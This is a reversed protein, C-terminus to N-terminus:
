FKTSFENHLRLFISLRWQLKAEICMHPFLAFLLRRQLKYRLLPHEATHVHFILFDSGSTTIQLIEGFEKGLASWYRGELVAHDTIWLMPKAVEEAM